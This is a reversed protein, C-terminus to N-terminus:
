RQSCPIEFTNETLQDLIESVNFLISAMSVKVLNTKTFLHLYLIYQLPNSFLQSFTSVAQPLFGLFPTIFPQRRM